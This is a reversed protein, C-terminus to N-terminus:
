SMTATFIYLNREFVWWLPKGLIPLYAPAPNGTLPRTDKSGRTDEHQGRQKSASQLQGWSIGMFDYWVQTNPKPQTLPRHRAAKGTNRIHQKSCTMVGCNPTWGPASSFRGAWRGTSHTRRRQLLLSGTNSCWLSSTTSERPPPSLALSSPRQPPSPRASSWWRMWTPTWWQRSVPLM